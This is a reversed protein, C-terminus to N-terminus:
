ISTYSITVAIKDATDAFALIEDGDSLLIREQGFVFTDARILRLDKIIRHKEALTEGNPKIYLSCIVDDTTSTNCIFITTVASDGSSNYVSTQSSGPLLTNQISM